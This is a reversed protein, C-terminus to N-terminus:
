LNEAEARSGAPLKKTTNPQHNLKYRVIKMGIIGYFSDGAVLMDSLKNKGDHHVYFSSRYSQNNFDYVDVVSAQDWTSRPEYRGIVKSCVFLRGNAAATLQNVTVPSSTLRRDGTRTDKFVRIDPHATTDITHGRHLLKLRGDAVVFQNRYYYTYVFRGSDADYAMTGDTDFFGDSLKQLLGNAHKMTATKGFTFTGLVNDANRADQARFAITGSGTPVAKSFYREGGHMIVGAKWDALFGRYIVPVTGDMLYFYPAAIRVQVSRFPFDDRDLTIKYHRKTKLAADFATVYLPAMRDGLYITNGDSGAFYLTPRELVAEGVQQASGQIFRRIFPNERHMAHESLLYLGIVGATAILGMGLLLLLSDKVPQPRWLLAALALLDFAANFALHEEWGMDELIGGCSCPVFPSFNLIVVIYATFGAMLFFSGALARYRLAPVALMVALVLEAAPVAVSVVGTFASLLPSQSLQARFAGFTIIKSVAAYVFLVMFLYSVAM